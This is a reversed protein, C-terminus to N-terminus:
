PVIHPINAKILAVDNSNIAGNANVDSRFNAVTVVQGLQGKTQAVDSANVVRNANTDGLLRSMPIVVNIAGNVGNLTVNITQQDAVNTLPITVINGAVTVMGGNSVGGSGITGTGLTVQAQPSGTVSVNTSFTVVMTYDNTAGGSRCEVGTTGTLPLNIDFDGAGGHTKRSVASNAVTTCAPISYARSVNQPAAANCFDSTFFGAGSNGQVGSVDTGSIAPSAGFVVDFRNSTALSNEYLRVEFNATSANNAFEVAHWEINFIRNPAVGSVSTFIGCGNAFTSCGSLGVDTRLDHWLGFITFDYPGINPTSPLCHTIYGGPENVVVFDLRGNSDVNVSNYTNGYLQFPFPLAVSTDGDDIHNGTDTVGPVIPDTGPTIVYQLPPCGAITYNGSFAAGPNGFQDTIAGAAISATLAGGFSANFTFRATMNSNIVSVGTVAAGTSGSLTLDSMQVSAPDVAENFNVDYTYSSPAPPSFTGGVPPVTTTVQLLTADYRFTCTFDLNGQGDSVRTFSGAPIHMTHIGQTGVPSANYHFTITLNGNSLVFSNAPTGDVTFATAQVTGPNVADTLNVVFDTPQSFVISGCAPTTNTVGFGVLERDTFADQQSAGGISM